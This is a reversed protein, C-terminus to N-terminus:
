KAKWFNVVSEEVLVKSLPMRFNLIEFM